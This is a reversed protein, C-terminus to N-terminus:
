RLLRRQLLTQMDRRGDLVCYVVAKRGMIRYVIRYPKYHAERYDAIGLSLLEKPVHGREPFRSLRNCTEELATLVRDAIRVGDQEAIYRYIDFLDHEADESILVAFDM